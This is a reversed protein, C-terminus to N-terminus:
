ERGAPPRRQDLKPVQSPDGHVIEYRLTKRHRGLLHLLKVEYGAPNEAKVVRGHFIRVQHIKSHREILNQGAADFPAGIGTLFGYATYGPKRNAFHALMRRDTDESWRHFWNNIYYDRWAGGAALRVRAIFATITSKPNLKLGYFESPIRDVARM